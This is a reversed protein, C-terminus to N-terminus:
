SHDQEIFAISEQIEREVKQRNRGYKMRSLSRVMNATEPNGKFPPLTRMSFTKTAQNDILLRIYANYKEINMLDYQSVNPALQKAFVEADEVGIRFCIMTGVNGFVADRVKTNETKGEIGGGSLQALYQHALILNLKYKRAEALIVSISNTIFNQFEDIYLYFDNRQEEPMDARALAAMQLKSVLILGLLSSNIEGIKGKSLNVLLIKRNDMIERLNISTKKQGIINRVLSNEVFRGVKSILYGLMESKHFDSTKKMEKEWFNKVLPDDVHRIKMKQFDPDTFIRPIDVLTGPNSRDAMLTLMANRMNHEFMPGIMAPDTVLKYFIAIMEQIALDAQQPNEADLMNLGIPRETDSADFLVVDEIRKKPITGLLNEILTGHPDVVAVGHGRHIDQVALNEILTSKGTGTMGIIYMHRRRDDEKMYIPTAVEQFVNEGLLLGAKPIHAPAPLRKALLWHINPVETVATPLHFLSAMEEANLILRTKPTFQRYTFAEILQPLSTKKPRFRNGFQYFSFQNFSEIIGDLYYQAYREDRASVVIRINTELGAKSTKEELMKITEQAMPTLQPPKQSERNDPIKKSSSTSFFNILKGLTLGSATKSVAYSIKTGKQMEQAAKYGWRHWSKKASRAVIQIAAGDHEAIKNLSNLIAELPDIDMKLYTRVPFIYEREFVIVCGKQKGQPHFINYPPVETLEAEPYQALIMQQTYSQLRKPTSIYFSILGRFSVIEFTFHDNRGFLMARIGRQARLGGLSTFLGEALAIQNKLYQPTNSHIEQSDKQEKPIRVLLFARQYISPLLHKKQLLARLVLLLLTILVLFLIVGGAIFIIRNQFPLFGPSM